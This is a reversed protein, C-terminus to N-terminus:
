VTAARMFAIEQLNIKSVVFLIFGRNKDFNEMENNQKIMAIRTM